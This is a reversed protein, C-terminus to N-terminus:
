LNSLQARIGKDLNQVWGNYNRHIQGDKANLEVSDKYTINYTKTDHTIDVTAQHNRLARNGVLQGTKVPRITWGLAAGARVIAQQVEQMSAPKGTATMIPANQVNYVPQSTCGVAAALLVASIGWGLKSM